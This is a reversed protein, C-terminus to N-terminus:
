PESGGITTHPNSGVNYQTQINIRSTGFRRQEEEPTMAGLIRRLVGFEMSGGGLEKTSAQWDAWARGVTSQGAAETAQQVAMQRRAEENAIQVNPDAAQRAAIEEMAGGGLLEARMRQGAGSVSARSLAQFTALNTPGGIAGLIAGQNMGGRQAAAVVNLRTMVDMDDRIGVRRQQPTVRGREDIMMLADILGMVNRQASEPMDPKAAIVTALMDMGVKPGGRQLLMTAERVDMAGAAISTTMDAAQESSAGSSMFQTMLKATAQGDGRTLSLSRAMQEMMQERDGSSMDRNLDAATAIGQLLQNRDEPRLGMTKALQNARKTLKESEGRPLNSAVARVANGYEAAARVGDTLARGMERLFMLAGAGVSTFGIMSAVASQVGQAFSNQGRAADEGARGAERIRRNAEDQVQNQMGLTHALRAIQRERKEAAEANESIGQKARRDTIILEELKQRLRGLQSSRSEESRSTRRAAEGAAEVQKVLRAETEQLSAVKRIADDAEITIRQKIEEAM